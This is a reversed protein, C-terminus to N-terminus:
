VNFYPISIVGETITKQEHNGQSEKNKLSEM